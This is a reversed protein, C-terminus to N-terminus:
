LNFLLKMSLNNEQLYAFEIEFASVPMEIKWNELVEPHIEGFIGIKKGDVIIEAQRGEIFSKHNSEKVEFNVGLYKMFSEVVGKMKAYSSDKSAELAAVHRKTISKVESNEDPEVIEGIEFIKQPYSVHTNKSIVEILSPIIWRRLETYEESVPNIVSIVKEELAGMKKFQKKGNTMIPRIIETFGLGVLINRMKKSIKEVELFEGKTSLSPLEPEFNNYGHAIAIDEYVDVRHLIDMRYPPVYVYTKDSFEVKYGMRELYKKLKEKNLEIGLLKEAEEKSIEIKEWELEPYVITKDKYKGKVSEIKGGREAFSYVLLNLVKSVTKRDTGTIDIFINKTKETVRTRESNLIPPFSFIGLSDSFVPWKKAQLIIEGYERGKETEFLTQALTKEETEGLPVFKEERDARRYKIPPKIKDFDHIGIAVKKRKRGVSNHLVEQIQMLSAVFEDTLEVDKVIATAIFPRVPVEEAEIEIGSDVVEIEKEEIGLFKKISMALGEISFLDPRDATHEIEIVDDKVEEVSPKISNIVNVLEEDSMKKGILKILENKNYEIIPVIGGENKKDM